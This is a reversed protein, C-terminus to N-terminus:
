LKRSFAKVFRALRFEVINELSNAPGPKTNKHLFSAFFHFPNIKAEIKVQKPGELIEFVMNERSRGYSGGEKEEAHRQPEGEWAEFRM